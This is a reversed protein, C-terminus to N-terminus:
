PSYIDGLDNDYFTNDAQLTTADPFETGDLYIGYGESYGLSDGTIEPLADAIYVNGYEDAGAYEIKCGKLKCEADISMGYFEIGQWDGKARPTVASTFTIWDSTGDAILGGPATYGVYFEIGSQFELTSGPAITLVPNKGADGISIDSEIEYPVGLNAWTGTTTVDGGHILVFDQTNGTFSNGSGITRVYDPYISVPYRGCDTITNNEFTEFYGGPNLAIGDNESKRITCDSIKVDFDEVYFSGYSENSGAYEIVCYKFSTTSMADKYIGIAVWDGPSPVAVNSTFTIVSDATGDAVIAGSNYYGCYLECGAEFKVICGPKITLTANDQVSIDSQIIHPNGAPEWIENSLINQDHYTPGGGVVLTATDVKGEAAAFISVSGLAIGTALGSADITAVATNSSSWTFTIGTIENSSADLAKATFQKTGNVSITATSPSIEIEMVVAGSRVTVAATGKKGDAEATITCSGVAVATVLGSTSVTAVTNDSSSWTFDVDAIENGDADKAEATLQQTGGAGLTASAPTVEITDIESFLSCGVIGILVLAVIVTVKKM